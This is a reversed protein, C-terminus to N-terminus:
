EYASAECEQLSASRAIRKVLEQVLMESVSSAGLVAARAGRRSFAKSSVGDALAVLAVNCGFTKYNVNINRINFDDERYKGEYAHGYGRRSAGIIQWGHLLSM